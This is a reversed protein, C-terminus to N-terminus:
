GRRSFRLPLRELTHTALTPLYSLEEIPIALEINDFRKIIERAAVKIEMRALAAGICRHIGAGFTLSNVLNGRNVNLTSPQPFRAEDDNASAFMVCLQAFAPVVTGGLNVERM